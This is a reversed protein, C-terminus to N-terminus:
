DARVRALRVGHGQLAVNTRDVEVQLEACRPCLYDIREQQIMTLRELEKIRYVLDPELSLVNGRSDLLM